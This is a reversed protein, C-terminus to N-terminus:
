KIYKYQDSKSIAKTKNFYNFLQSCPKRFIYFIFQSLNNGKNGYKTCITKLTINGDKDVETDIVREPGTNNSHSNDIHAQLDFQSLGKYKCISCIFSDEM